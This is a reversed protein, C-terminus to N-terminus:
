RCQVFFYFNKYIFNKIRSFYNAYPTTRDVLKEYEGKKQLSKVEEM